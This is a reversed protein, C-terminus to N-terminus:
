VLPSASESSPGFVQLKRHSHIGKHLCIVQASTYLATCELPSYHLIMLPRVSQSTQKTQKTSCYFFFVYECVFGCVSLGVIDRELSQFLATPPKNISGRLDTHTSSRAHQLTTRHTQPQCYKDTSINSSYLRPTPEAQPSLELEVSFCSVYLPCTVMNSAFTMRKLFSQGVPHVETHWCFQRDTRRGMQRDLCQMLLSKSIQEAEQVAKM